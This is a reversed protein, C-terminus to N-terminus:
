EVDSNLILTTGHFMKLGGTFKKSVTGLRHRKQPYKKKNNTNTKTMSYQRNRAAKHYGAPFPSVEQSEQIHHSRTYKDSEWVHRPDPTTSSKISEQYKCEEKSELCQCTPLTSCVSDNMIIKLAYLVVALSKCFIFGTCCTCTGYHACIKCFLQTALVPM